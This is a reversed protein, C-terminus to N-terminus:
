VLYFRRGAQGPMLPRKVKRVKWQNRTKGGRDYNDVKGASSVLRMNEWKGFKERRQRHSTTEKREATAVPSM